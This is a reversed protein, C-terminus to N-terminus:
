ARQCQSVRLTIWVFKAACAIVSSYRWTRISEHETNQTCKKHMRVQITSVSVTNRACELGPIYPFAKRKSQPPLPIDTNGNSADSILLIPISQVRLHPLMRSYPSTIRLGTVVAHAHMSKSTRSINSNLSKMMKTWTGHVVEAFSPTLFRRDASRSVSVSDRLWQAKEIDVPAAGDPIKRM